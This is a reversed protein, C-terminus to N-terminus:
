LIIGNGRSMVAATTARVHCMKFVLIRPYRSYGQSTGRCKFSGAFPNIYAMIGYLGTIHQREELCKEFICSPDVCHCRKCQYKGECCESVEDLQM